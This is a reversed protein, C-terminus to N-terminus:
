KLAQTLDGYAIQTIRFQDGSIVQAKILVFTPQRAEATEAFEAVSAVAPAPPWLLIVAVVEGTQPQLVGAVWQAATTNARRADAQDKLDFQKQVSEPLSTSDKIDASLDSAITLAPWTYGRLSVVTMERTQQLMRYPSEPERSGFRTISATTPVLAGIAAPDANQGTLADAVRAVNQTWTTAPQTTQGLSPACLLLGVVVMLVLRMSLM